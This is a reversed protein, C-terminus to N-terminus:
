SRAPRATFTQQRALAIAAAVHESGFEAKGSAECVTVIAERYLEDDGAVNRCALWLGHAFHYPRKTAAIERAVEEM